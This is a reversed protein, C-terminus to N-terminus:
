RLNLKSTSESLSDKATTPYGGYYPYYPRYGWGKHGNWKHGHWKHGGNWHHGGHWKHGGKHFGGGGGWKKGGAVASDANAACFLGAVVAAILLFRKM